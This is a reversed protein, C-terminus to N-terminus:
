RLNAEVGDLIRQLNREFLADRGPSDAVAEWLGDSGLEAIYRALEPYDEDLLTDIYAQLDDRSPGGSGTTRDQMCHGFVFDDVVSAIELKEALPLDLSRLAQLTQDFHRVVNPGFPPDDMIEMWWPHRRLADRTRHALLALAQRWDDPMLDDPGLVVEGMVTDMVLALLEDKTKVYHYLTMTGAGLESALRRMSLADFGEEDAIRLATSALQDQTFRPQRSQPKSRTWIDFASVRDAIRELQEARDVMRRAQEQQREAKSAIRDAKSAIQDAKSAVREAMREHHAAHDTLSTEIKAVLREVGSELGKPTGSAPGKGGRPTPPRGRSPAAPGRGRRGQTPEDSSGRAMDYM